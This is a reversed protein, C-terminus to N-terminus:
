KNGLVFMMAIMRLAEDESFGGAVMSDKLEKFQRMANDSSRKKEFEEFSKDFNTDENDMTAM